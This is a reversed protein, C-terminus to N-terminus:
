WSKSRATFSKIESDGFATFSLTVQLNCSDAATNITIEDIGNTNADDPSAANRNYEKTKCNSSSKAAILRRIVADILLLHVDTRFRGTDARARM